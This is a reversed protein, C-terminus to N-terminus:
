IGEEELERYILIMIEGPMKIGQCRTNQAEMMGKKISFSM